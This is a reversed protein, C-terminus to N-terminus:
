VTFARVKARVRELLEGARALGLDLAIDVFVQDLSKSSPASPSASGNKKPAAAKAVAPRVSPMSAAVSAKPATRSAKRTARKASSRIEYVYGPAITLGAARAKASVIKAPTSAPLSRVFETKNMTTAASKAPPTPAVRKAAFTANKPAFGQKSPVKSKSRIAYVHKDTLTMGAAKAKEVVDKAALTQPLGLVFATKTIKKHATKEAAM